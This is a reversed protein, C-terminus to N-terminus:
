FRFLNHLPCTWTCFHFVVDRLRFGVWWLRLNVFRRILYTSLAQGEDEGAKEKFRQYHLHERRQQLQQWKEVKLLSFVTIPPTSAAGFQWASWYIPRGIHCSLMLSIGVQKRRFSLSTWRYAPLFICSRRHELRSEPSAPRSSSHSFIKDKESHCFSSHHCTRHAATRRWTPVFLWNWGQSVAPRAAQWFRVCRVGPHQM